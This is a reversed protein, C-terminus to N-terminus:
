GMEKIGKLVPARLQEDAWQETYTGFGIMTNIAHEFLALYQRGEDGLVGRYVHFHGSELKDGVSHVIFNYIFAEATEGARIQTIYSEIHEPKWRSNVASRLADLLPNSLYALDRPVAHRAVEIKELLEQIESPRRTVLNRIRGWITTWGKRGTDPKALVVRCRRSQGSHDVIEATAAQSPPTMSFRVVLEGDRVPVCLNFSSRQNDAFNNGILVWTVGGKIWICELRVPLKAEEVRYGITVETGMIAPTPSFTIRLPRAEEVARAAGITLGCKTCTLEPGLEDWRENSNCALCVEWHGASSIGLRACEAAMEPFSGGCLCCYATKPDGRWATETDRKCQPCYSM